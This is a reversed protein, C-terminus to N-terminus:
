KPRSKIKLINQVKHQVYNTACIKAYKTLKIGLYKISNSTTYKLM